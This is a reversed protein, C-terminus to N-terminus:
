GFVRFTFGDSWRATFFVENRSFDIKVTGFQQLVDMGLLLAPKSTLGLKDFPETGAFAIPLNRIHVTGIWVDKVVVFEGSILEGTVALIQVPYATGYKRRRQLEDKLNSNGVSINSGTDLLAQVAVGNTKATSFVMRSNRIKMRAAVGPTPDFSAHRHRAPEMFLRRRDFDFVVVQDRLTDLGLFGDAGIAEQSFTLALVNTIRGRDPGDVSLHVTPVTTTGGFGTVQWPEGAPLRLARALELSVGTREAGTDVLFRHEQGGIRVPVTFRLVSDSELKIEQPTTPPASAAPAAAQLQVATLAIAAPFVWVTEVGL